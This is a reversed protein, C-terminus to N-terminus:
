EEVALLFEALTNEDPSIINNIEEKIRAVQVGTSRIEDRLFEFQQWIDTMTNEWESKARKHAEQAFTLTCNQPPNELLEEIYHEQKSEFTELSFREALGSLSLYYNSKKSYKNKGISLNNLSIQIGRLQGQLIKLEEQHRVYWAIPLDRFAEEVSIDLQTKAILRSRSQIIEKEMTSMTHLFQNRMEELENEFVPNLPNKEPSKKREEWEQDKALYFQMDLILFELHTKLGPNIKEPSKEVTAVCGKASVMLEYVLGHRFSKRGGYPTDEIQSICAKAMDILQQM